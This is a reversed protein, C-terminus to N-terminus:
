NINWPTGTSTIARLARVTSPTTAAGTTAAAATVGSHVHLKLFSVLSNLAMVCATLEDNAIPASTGGFWHDIEAGMVNKTLSRDDGSAGVLRGGRDYFQYTISTLGGNAVGTNGGGATNGSHTHTEAFDILANIGASLRDLAGSGSDVIQGTLKIKQSTGPM